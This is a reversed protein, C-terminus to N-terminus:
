LKDAKEIIRQSIFNREKDGLEKLLRDTVFQELDQTQASKGAIIEIFRM